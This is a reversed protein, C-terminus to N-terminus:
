PMRDPNSSPFGTFQANAQNRSADRGKTARPCRYWPVTTSLKQERAFGDSLEPYINNKRQRAFKEAGAICGGQRTRPCRNVALANDAATIPDKASARLCPCRWGVRLTAFGCHKSTADFCLQAIAHLTPVTVDHGRGLTRQGASKQRGFIRHKTVPLIEM